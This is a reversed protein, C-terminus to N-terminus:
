LLIYSSRNAKVFELTRRYEEIIQTYGDRPADEPEITETNQEIIMWESLAERTPKTMERKAVLFMNLVNIDDYKKRKMTSIYPAYIKRHVGSLAFKARTAGSIYRIKLKTKSTSTYRVPPISTLSKAETLKETILPEGRTDVTRKVVEEIEEESSKATPDIVEPSIINVLPLPETPRLETPDFIIGSIPEEFDVEGTPKRIIGQVYGPGILASRVQEGSILSWLQRSAILLRGKLEEKGFSSMFDPVAYDILWYLVRERDSL